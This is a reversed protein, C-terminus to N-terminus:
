GQHHSLSLTPSYEGIYQRRWWWGKEKKEQPSSYVYEYIVARIYKPPKGEFPNGRLLHLVEPTGRLLHYLFRQFWGASQFTTFPLFWVQWDIRPQYPSIRRPRRTIESPKHKFLYEQWVLGDQSGEVVIEYRVTTMVAFIGYRNVIHFLSLWYMIKGFRKNPFFYNWQQMLQMAVLFTGVGYLFVNLYVNPVEQSQPPAMVYSLVQNNLLTTCLVVTLHNLYSFNGTFWIVFQLGVFGVYVVWRLEDQMFIAFPLVLEIFFMLLVTFKQFWMPLRYIYWAQTNPIPQTQYHYAIATLDRWSPDKSLLKSVGAQFHFRFNLLNISIWVMINPTTTLSLLFANLTIEQFFVEWGFSLFDQGVEEISLYLFYLIALLLSPYFGMVLLISLFTGLATVGMLMRDSCNWWFITPAYMYCKKPYYTKLAELYDSVPLIGSKGVLGRIQFLFAGFAFFYILGLLKPLLANAITYSEVHFM